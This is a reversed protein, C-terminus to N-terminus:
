IPRQTLKYLNIRSAIYTEGVVLTAKRLTKLQFLHTQGAKTQMEATAVRLHQTNPTPHHPPRKTEKAPYTSQLFIIKVKRSYLFVAFHPISITGKM